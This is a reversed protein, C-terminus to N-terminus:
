DPVWATGQETFVFQLNPHRELAGGVILHTLARHACWSVELLFVVADVDARHGDAAGRQRRPPQRPM